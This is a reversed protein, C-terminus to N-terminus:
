RSMLLNMDYDAYLEEDTVDKRSQILNMKRIRRVAMKRELEADMDIQIKWVDGMVYVGIEKTVRSQFENSPEVVHRMARRAHLANPIYKGKVRKDWAVPVLPVPHGADDNVYVFGYKM